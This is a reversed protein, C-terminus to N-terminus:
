RDRATASTLRGPPPAAQPNLKGPLFDSARFSGRNSGGSSRTRPAATRQGRDPRPAARQGGRPSGDHRGGRPHVGGGRHTPVAHGPVWYGTTYGVPIGTTRPQDARRQETEAETRLATAMQLLAADRRAQNRAEIRAAEAAATAALAQSREAPTVWAGEYHVLGRRRMLEDEPLWRDSTDDYLFGLDRMVPALGTAGPDLESARRAAERYATALNEARAWRALELWDAATTGPDAALARRRTLFHELATTSRDIRVVKSRPIRIAGYPLHIAVKEGEVRAVVDEFTRGNTLLVDDAGAPLVPLALAAVVALVAVACWGAGRTAPHVPRAASHQSQTM